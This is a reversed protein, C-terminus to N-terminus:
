FNYCRSIDAMGVTDYAHEVMCDINGFLNIYITGSGKLNNKMIKVKRNEVETNNNQASFM